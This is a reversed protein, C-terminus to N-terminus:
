ERIESLSFKNRLCPVIVETATLTQSIMENMSYIISQQEQPKTTYIIEQLVSLQM